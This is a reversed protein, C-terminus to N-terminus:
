APEKRSGPCMKGFGKQHNVIVGNALAKKKGCARCEGFEEDKKSAVERPAPTERLPRSKTTTVASAMSEPAPVHVNSKARAGSNRAVHQAERLKRLDDVKGM